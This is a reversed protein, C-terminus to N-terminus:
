FIGTHDEAQRMRSGTKNETYMFARIPRVGSWPTRSNYVFEFNLIEPVSHGLPDSEHFIFLAYLKLNLPGHM